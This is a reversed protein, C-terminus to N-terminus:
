ETNELLDDKKQRIRVFDKLVMEVIGRTVEKLTELEKDNLGPDAQVEMNVQLGPGQALTSRRDMEDTNNPNKPQWGGRLLGEALTTALKDTQLLAAIEHETIGPIERLREYFEPERPPKRTGVEVRAITSEDVGLISALKRQSLGIRERYEKLLQGFGRTHPYASTESRVIPADKTLVPM